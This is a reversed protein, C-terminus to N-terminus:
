LEIIANIFNEYNVESNYNNHWTEFAKKSYEKYKGEEMEIFAEVSKVIESVSPNTSLLKGNNM